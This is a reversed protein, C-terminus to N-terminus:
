ENRCIGQEFQDLGLTNPRASYFFLLEKITEIKM